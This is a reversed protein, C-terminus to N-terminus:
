SMEISRVDRCPGCLFCREETATWNDNVSRMSFMTGRNINLQQKASRASFEMRRNNVPRQRAVTETYDGIESDGGLFPDVYCLISYM